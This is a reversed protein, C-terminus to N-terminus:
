GDHQDRHRAALRSIGVDHRNGFVQRRGQNSLTESLGCPSAQAPNSGNAFGRSRRRSLARGDGLM